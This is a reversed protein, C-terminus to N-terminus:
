VRTCARSLADYNIVRNATRMDTIAVVAQCRPHKAFVRKIRKPYINANARYIKACFPPITRARTHQGAGTTWESTMVAGGRVMLQRLAYRQDSTTKPISM